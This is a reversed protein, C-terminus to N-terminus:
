KISEIQAHSLEWTHPPLAIFNASDLYAQNAESPAISWSLFQRIAATRAPDPHRASVVAYEYNVLPYTGSAPAFVLTLREDKPTREGLSAASLQMAERTPLVFEGAGNQLAATGLKAAAIDKSYSVGVYGVSYPTAAITKVMGDNGTAAIGNAVRPWALTTGFGHVQEWAPTSFSLFQSFVFTDGSGDGRHVPVIAHAPLTVGPNLAAIAPANWQQITGDYIGALVPGSLKLHLTDLGPLNYNVTQAAIALPINIIDPHRAADDDSMYADSTGIDVKGAIADRIGAESGTLGVIIRVQPHSQQYASVWTNLLPAILTSGSETLTTQQASAPIAVLSTCLVAATQWRKRALCSFRESLTHM